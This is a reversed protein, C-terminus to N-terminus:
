MYKRIEDMGHQRLSRPKFDWCTAELDVILVRDGPIAM